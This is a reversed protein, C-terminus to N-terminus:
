SAEAEPAQPGVADAPAEADRERALIRWITRESVFLRDSIASVTYGRERLDLVQRARENRRLNRNAPVWMYAARGGVAESVAELLEAPLVDRASTYYRPM